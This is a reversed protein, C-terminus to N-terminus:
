AGRAPGLPRTQGRARQHRSRDRRARRPHAPRDCPSAVASALKRDLSLRLLRTFLSRRVTRRASWWLAGSRTSTRQERQLLSSHAARRHRPERSIKKRRRRLRLRHLVGTGIMMLLLGFAALWRSVTLGTTPLLGSPPDTPEVKTVTCTADGDECTTIPPAGNVVVGNMLESDGRQGDPLVHATYSVQTSEQGPLSGSVRLSEGDREVTLGGVDVVRGFAADDLVQSLDDVYDVRGDNDGSNAITLTYTVIDGAHVPGDADVSKEVSVDGVVPNATCLTSTPDCAGNSPPQAGTALLFNGLTQDGLADRDKVQVGYSVTDSAGAALTGTVSIRNDDPTVTVLDADATPPVTLDADDLVGALHDVMDVDVPATGDSTFGLTYALEDGPEVATGSAPDVTKTATLHRVLHETCLPDDEEACAAAPDTGAPVLFTELVSDEHQAFPKTRVTYIVTGSEGSDLDGTIELWAPLHAALTGFGAAGFRQVDVGGSAHPGDILDADDLLGSIWENHDVPTTGGGANRFTITYTIPDGEAVSTGTVPSAVKTVTLHPVANVTCLDSSPACSTPPQEGDPTVFNELESDGRQAFPRVTATYAVTATDGPAITGGVELTQGNLTGTAGNTGGTVAVDADDLVGGLHDTHDLPAPVHGTNEFTLTYTVTQGETLQTGSGVDVSKTVEVEPLATVVPIEVLNSTASTVPPPQTGGPPTPPTFTASADNRVWQAVADDATVTYTATFAATGGNGDIEDVSAPAVASLGPLDDNVSVDYATDDGTNAVTFTYRVTDGADVEGPTVLDGGPAFEWDKAVEIVPLPPEALAWCGTTDNNGPNQDLLPGTVSAPFCLEDGEGLASGLVTVPISLRSPAGEVIPRATTGDAQVPTCTLSAPADVPPTGGGVVSCSWGTAAPDPLARLRTHEPLEVTVEAPAEDSGGLNEVSYHIDRDTSPYLAPEGAMDLDVALDAETLRLCVRSPEAPLTLSSDVAMTNCAIQDAQAGSQVTTSFTVSRSAGPALASILTLRMAKKGVIDTDWTSAPDGTSSPAMEPRSPNNSASYALALGPTAGLPHAVPDLGNLTLSFQSGRSAGTVLTTDGAYPLVDYAVADPLAQTGSNTITLRYKVNTANAPILAQQAPSSTWACGDAANADPVCIEKSTRIAPASSVTLPSANGLAVAEATVGDGDVDNTDSGNANVQGRATQFNQGVNTKWADAGSGEDYALVQAVAGNVATSATPGPTARVTLTPWNELGTVSPTIPGPWTAVVVQRSQGGVTATRYEYTIGAPGGAVSASDPLIEWGAPALFALQPTIQTGPWVEGTAGRMSFSVEKGPELAGGGVVTPAETFSAALNPVARTYRATHQVNATIPQALPTRDAVPTGTAWPQYIPPQGTGGFGPYTMSVTATNLRDEGLHDVAGNDVTFYGVLQAWSDGTDTPQIRVAPIPETTATVGTFWTGTQATFNTNAAVTTTGTAGTNLTYNLTMGVGAARLITTKIHDHSLANDTITAVAPMNGRNSVRVNWYHANVRDPQGPGPVNVASVVPSNSVAGDARTNSIVKDAHMGGFADWCAVNSTVSNNATKTTKAADLYTVTASVTSTVPASFNCGNADAQAFRTGDFTLTVNRAAWTAVTSPDSAVNRPAAPGGYFGSSPSRGWGGRAGYVPAAVSGVTWTITNGTIVAGSNTLASTPVITAEPPATYVVTYSGAAPTDGRGSIRSGPNYIGMNGPNMSVPQVINEGPRISTPSGVNVVPTAPAGINWTIDPASATFAASNASSMTADMEIQFGNPYFAGNPVDDGSTPATSGHRGEFAYVIDFSGSAGAPLDGLHVVKGTTDTGSVTANPLDSPPTFGNYLLLFRGAPLLNNPDRQSPSMQVQADACATDNCSYQVRYTVRHGLQGDAISSIVSGNSVDVPTVVVTVTGASAQGISAVTMLGAMLITVVAGVLARGLSSVQRVSFKPVAPM